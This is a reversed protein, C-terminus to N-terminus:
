AKSKETNQILTLGPVAIGCNWQEGPSRKEVVSKSSAWSGDTVSRGCTGRTYNLVDDKENARLIKTMRRRDEADCGTRPMSM